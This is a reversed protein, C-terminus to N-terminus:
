GSEPSERLPDTDLVDADTVAYWSLADYGYFSTMPPTLSRTLPIDGTTIVLMRTDNTM